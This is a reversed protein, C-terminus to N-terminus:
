SVLPYFIDTELIADTLNPLPMQQNMASMWVDNTLPSASYLNHQSSKHHNNSALSNGNTPYSEGPSDTSGINKLDLDGPMSTSENSNSPTTLSIYNSALSSAAANNASSLSM